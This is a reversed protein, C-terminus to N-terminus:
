NNQLNRDAEYYFGLPDPYHFTYNLLATLKDSSVIKFPEPQEPEAFTPVEWGFQNCSSEYVSRRPPHQPAVVNYVGGSQDSALLASIIGVVDDRHIYNVPVDGTTM